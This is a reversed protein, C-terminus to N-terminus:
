PLMITAIRFKRACLTVREKNIVKRAYLLQLQLREADTSGYQNLLFHKMSSKHIDRWTLTSTDEIDFFVEMARPSAPLKLTKIPHIGDILDNGRRQTLFPLDNILVREVLLQALASYDMTSLSMSMKNFIDLVFFVVLAEVAFAEVVLRGRAELVATWSTGTWSAGTRTGSGDGVSSSM